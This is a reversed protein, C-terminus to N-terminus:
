FATNPVAAPHVCFMCCRCSSVSISGHLCFFVVDMVGRESVYLM